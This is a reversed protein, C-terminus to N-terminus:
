HAKCSGYQYVTQTNIRPRGEPNPLKPDTFIDSTWRQLCDRFLTPKRQLKIAGDRCTAFINLCIGLFLM